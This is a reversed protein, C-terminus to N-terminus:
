GTRPRPSEMRKCKHSRVGPRKNTDRQKGDIQCDLDEWDFVADDKFGERSLLNGFLNLLYNYDPKEDFSLSHCYELFTFLEVPLGHCLDHVSTQQKSEVVLDRTKFELGQWPLSGRLFYILIYALSELDDRRGLELGLHSHISAFMATGTFGLAKRFPIHQHTDPDRFEKSLGFDIIYV